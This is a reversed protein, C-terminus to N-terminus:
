VAIGRDGRGLPLLQPVGHGLTALGQDHLPAGVAVAIEAATVAPEGGAQPLGAGLPQFQHQAQVHVRGVVLAQLLQIAFAQVAIELGLQAARQALVLVHAPQCSGTAPQYRGM